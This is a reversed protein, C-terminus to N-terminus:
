SSNTINTERIATQGNLVYLGHMKNGKMIVMSRKIVKLVEKEVKIKCEIQDLM